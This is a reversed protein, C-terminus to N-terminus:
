RSPTGSVPDYCSDWNRFWTDFNRATWTSDDWDMSNQNGERLIFMHGGPNHPFEGSYDTGGEETAMFTTTPWCKRTTEEMRRWILNYFINNLILMDSDYVTQDNEGGMEIM